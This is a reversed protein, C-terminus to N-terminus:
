GVYDLVEKLNIKGEYLARGIIVGDINMKKLRKIQDFSSIGGAVITNLKTSEKLLQIADYNPETLTGDKVTDTYIITQLGKKELEKVTPMLENKSPELWGNKMLIGNKADLSVVIKKGYSDVVQNLLVENELAATGLIIRSVGIRVLEEITSLSRIGGGVQIPISVSDIIKIIAPMNIVTGERAGDLDVIHLMGAGQNKWNLAVSVPDDYYVTERGYDGQFLRVCKGNRIDIALIIKM